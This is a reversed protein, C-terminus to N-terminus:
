KYYHVLCGVVNDYIISIYQNVKCGKVYLVNCALFLSTSIFITQPFIKKCLSKKWFVSFSSFFFTEIHTIM